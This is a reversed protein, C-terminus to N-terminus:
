NARTRIRANLPPTDHKPENDRRASKQLYDYKLVKIGKIFSSPLRSLGDNAWIFTIVAVFLEEERKKAVSILKNKLLRASHKMRPAETLYRREEMRSTRQM